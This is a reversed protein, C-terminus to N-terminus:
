SRDENANLDMNGGAGDHDNHNTAFWIINREYVMLIPTDLIKNKNYM